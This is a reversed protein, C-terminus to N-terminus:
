YSSGVLLSLLTGDPFPDSPRAQEVRMKIRHHPAFLSAGPPEVIARVVIGPEEGSTQFVREQELVAACWRESADLPVVRGGRWEVVRYGSGTLGRVVDPAAADLPRPLGYERRAGAESDFEGPHHREAIMVADPPVPVGELM